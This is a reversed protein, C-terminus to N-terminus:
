AFTPRLTAIERKLVPLDQEVFQTWASSIKRAVADRDQHELDGATLIKRRWITNWKENLGKGSVKFPPQRSQVFDWYAKRVTLDGPGIFLLLTLEDSRNRFEFLLLRKSDTWGDGLRLENDSWEHPAFQIYSKSSHDLVLSPTEAIHTEILQKISSQFDPRKEFIFDLAIKHKSYIQQALKSLDDDEMFHRTLLNKYHRLLVVIDPHVSREKGALLEAIIQHVDKYTLHAYRADSPPTADVALMVFQHRYGPFREAVRQAYRQLQQSHEGTWIKNEIALVFKETDNVVLLDIWESEREVRSADLNWVGLQLASVASQGIALAAKQAFRKLFLDGLGHNGSPDLLYALFDSHRLESNVAGIAEFFNVERLGLAVQRLDADQLILAELAARVDPKSLGVREDDRLSEIVFGHVTVAGNAENGGGFQKASIGGALSVIQKVPYLKGDHRIAYRHARNQTWDTWDPTGRMDADFLALANLISDRTVNDFKM